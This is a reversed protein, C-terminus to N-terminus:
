YVLRDQNDELRINIYETRHNRHQREWEIGSNLDDIIKDVECIENYEGGPSIAVSSINNTKCYTALASLPDNYYWNPQNVFMFVRLINPYEEKKFEVMTEIFKRVFFQGRDSAREGAICCLNDKNIKYNLCLNIVDFDSRPNGGFVVAIDAKRYYRDLFTILSNKFVYPEYNWTPSVAIIIKGKPLHAKHEEKYKKEITRLHQIAKSSNEDITIHVRKPDRDIIPELDKPIKYHNTPPLPPPLDIPPKPIYEAVDITCLISIEESIIVNIKCDFERRTYIADIFGHSNIDICIGPEYKVHGELDREIKDRPLITLSGNLITSRFVNTDDVTIRCPIIINREKPVNIRTFISYILDLRNTKIRCPIDLSKYHNLIKAHGIIVASDQLTPDLRHKYIYEDKISQLEIKVHGQLECEDKVEGSKELYAKSYIDIIRRDKEYKLSGTIQYDAWDIETNIPDDIEPEQIGIVYKNIVSHGDLITHYIQYKDIKASGIIENHQYYHMIYPDIDNKYEELSMAEHTVAGYIENSRINKINDVIPSVENDEVVSNQSITVSGYIENAHDINEIINRYNSDIHKELRLNGYIENSRINKINDVIPNPNNWEDDQNDIDNVELRDLKVKGQIINDYIGKYMELKIYGPIDIVKNALQVTLSGVIEISELSTDIIEEKQIHLTGYIESSRTQTNMDVIPSVENDEVVSNQSITVSGYIENNRIYRDQDVIPNDEPSLDIIEQIEYTVTGLIENSRINNYPNVIPNVEDDNEINNKNILIHGYIENAHDINDVINHYDSEIYNELRLTGIIENSGIDTEETINSRDYKVKGQIINDYIGKYMELKAYGPIDTSYKLKDTRITCPFAYEVTGEPLIKAHGIIDDVSYDKNITLLGRIVAIIEIDFSPIIEIRCLMNWEVALRENAM